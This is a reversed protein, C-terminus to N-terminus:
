HPAGVISRVQGGSRIESGGKSSIFGTRLGEGGGPLRVPVGLSCLRDPSVLDELDATARSDPTEQNGLRAPDM